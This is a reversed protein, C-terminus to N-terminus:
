VQCLERLVQSWICTMFAGANSLSAGPALGGAGSFGAGAGLGGASCTAASGAMSMFPQYMGHSTQGGAAGPAYGADTSQGLPRDSGTALSFLTGVGGPNVAQGATLLQHPHPQQQQQQQLQRQEQQQQQQLQLEQTAQELQMLTWGAQQRSDGQPGAEAEVAAKTILPVQQLQQHQALVSQQQQQMPDHLQALESQQQQQQQTPDHLQALVSQQQQQQGLRHLQQPPPQVEEDSMTSRANTGPMMNVTERFQQETFSSMISGPATPGATSGGGPPPSGGQFVFVADASMLLLLLL